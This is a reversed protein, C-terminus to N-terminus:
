RINQPLCPFFTKELFTLPISLSIFSGSVDEVLKYVCACTVFRLEEKCNGTGDKIYPIRPKLSGFRIKLM